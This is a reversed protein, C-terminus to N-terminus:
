HVIEPYVGRLLSCTAPGTVFLPRNSVLVIEALHSERLSPAYIPTM